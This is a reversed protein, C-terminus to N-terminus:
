KFFFLYTLNLCTFFLFGPIMSSIAARVREYSSERYSKVFSTQLPPVGLSIIWLNSYNYKVFTHRFFVTQFLRIIYPYTPPTPSNEKDWITFVIYVSSTHYFIWFNSPYNPYEETVTIRRLPNKKKKLAHRFGGITLEWRTSLTTQCMPQDRRLLKSDKYAPDGSSNLISFM